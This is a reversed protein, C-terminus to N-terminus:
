IFIYFWCAFVSCGELKNGRHEETVVWFEQKWCFHPSVAEGQQWSTPTDAAASTTSARPATPASQSPWHAATSRSRQDTKEGSRGSGESLRQLSGTETRITTQLCIFILQLFSASCAPVHAARLLTQCCSELLQVAASRRSREASVASRFFSLPPFYFRCM